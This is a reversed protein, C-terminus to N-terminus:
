RAAVLAGHPLRAAAEGLSYPTAARLAQVAVELRGRIRGNFAANMVQPSMLENIDLELAGQVMAIEQVTLGSDLMWDYLAGSHVDALRLKNNTRVVADVLDGHGSQYILEAMPCRVGRGDRFESVPYSTKPDIPFVGAQEYRELAAIMEARHIGLAAITFPSATPPAIPKPIAACGALAVLALFSAKIKM